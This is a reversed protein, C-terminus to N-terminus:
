MVLWAALGLFSFFSLVDTLISLFIGSAIAPDIKLRALTLPILSGALGAIALVIGLGHTLSNAIEEGLTYRPKTATQTM